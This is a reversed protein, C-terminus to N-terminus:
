LAVGTGPSNGGALCVQIKALLAPHCYVVHAREDVYYFKAPAEVAVVKTAEWPRWPLSLLRERWTRPREEFVRHTMYPSTFVRWGHLWHGNWHSM